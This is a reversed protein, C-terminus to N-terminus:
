PEPPRREGREDAAPKGDSIVKELVPLVILVLLIAVTGMIALAYEGLGCTM